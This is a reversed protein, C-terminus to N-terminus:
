NLLEKIKMFNIESFSSIIHNAMKIQNAKFSTTIGVVKMGAAQGAQIGLISDEFVLCKNPALNLKSATALYVEPNPKAHKIQSEDVLAKFFNRINLRDLVFNLNEPPASTAVALDVNNNNLENLLNLLGAPAKISAAFMERYLAEKEIAITEIIKEDFIGLLREIFIKNSGGFIDRIEDSTRTKGHKLCTLRWAENHIESNEVLVGDMDFIVAIRENM